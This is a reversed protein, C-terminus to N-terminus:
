ATHLDGFETAFHLALQAPSAREPAPSGLLEDERILYDFDCAGVRDVWSRLYDHDPDSTPVSLAARLRANAPECWLLADAISDGHALTVPFVSTVLPRLARAGVKWRQAEESSAFDHVGPTLM